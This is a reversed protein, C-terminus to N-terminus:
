VSKLHSRTHMGTTKGIRVINAECKNPGLAEIGNKVVRNLHEMHQDASINRGPIGSTNVFRNYKLQEAQKPSLLYQYEYLLLVAEKAYNYLDANHFILMMYRWCRIVRDGDGERIGDAFELFISGISLLRKVYLLVLDQGADDSSSTNFQIDVYNEIIKSLISDMVKERESTEQLWLDEPILCSWEEENSIGIVEM